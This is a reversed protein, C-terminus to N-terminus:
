FLLGLIFLLGIKLYSTNNTHKEEIPDGECIVKIDSPNYEGYEDKIVNACQANDLGIDFDYCYEGGNSGTTKFDAYCCKKGDEVERSFCEEISNPKPDTFCERGNGGRIFVILLLFFIKKM